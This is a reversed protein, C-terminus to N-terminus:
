ENLLNEKRLYEILIRGLEKHEDILLPFFFDLPFWAVEDLDDSAIVPGFCMNMVFFASMLTDNGGKPYRYDDIQASGLYKPDGPEMKTEERVERKAAMELSEDGPTVFGGIFRWKDGDVKKRGLLVSDHHVVAVDVCQYSTPHKHKSAYIMGERFDPTDKPAVQERAQTGSVPDAPPLEFTRHKGCYDKLFSDRGGYLTPPADSAGTIDRMDAILIDLCMSWNYNSPMDPIRVVHVKPYMKKLMAARMEFTLPDHTTMRTENDGIGVLVNEHLGTVMNLLYRHGAHLEPVQLRVVCVGLAKSKM